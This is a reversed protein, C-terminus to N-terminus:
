RPAQSANGPWVPRNAARGRGEPASIRIMARGKSSITSETWRPSAQLLQKAHVGACVEAALPGVLQDGPDFAESLVHRPQLTTLYQALTLFFMTQMRTAKGRQMVKSVEQREIESKYRNKALVKLSKKCERSTKCDRWARRNRKLDERSWIAHKIRQGTFTKCIPRRLASFTQLDGTENMYQDEFILWNLGTLFLCPFTM